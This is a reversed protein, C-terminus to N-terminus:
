AGRVFAFRCRLGGSEFRLDTQSSQQGAIAYKILRTGFGRRAPASIAHATHEKWVIEVRDETVNWALDVSGNANKLAGYKVANTALEHFALALGGAMNEALMVAPGSVHLRPAYSDMFPSLALKAVEGLDATRASSSVVIEGVSLLARVRGMFTTFFIETAPEDKPVANRGLADIVTVLNAVRHRMERLLLTQQDRALKSATIDRAIKSAGVTRGAENRIPSITLSVDVLSGDKRCRITEYTDICEGRHLRQLIETEENHRDLPILTMVSRGVIEDASYGFLREAGKNWSTIIGNLNKSVIADNSSDVIAALMQSTTWDDDVPLSGFRKLADGITGRMGM